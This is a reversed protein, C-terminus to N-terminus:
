VGAYAYQAAQEPPSRTAKNILAQLSQASFQLEFVARPLQFAEVRFCSMATLMETMMTM